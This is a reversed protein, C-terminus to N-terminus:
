YTVPKDMLRHPCTENYPQQLQNALSNRKLFSVFMPEFDDRHNYRFSYEDLYKQLHQPSVSHFVGRIGNKVLSWFGEITNTHVNGIVYIKQGHLVWSHNYGFKQLNHYPKFEDSYIQSAKSIQDNIIPHITKGKLDPVAIAKVSGKRQVMGFVPSKGEAGRGRKGYRKGGFYSDDIEVEGGLPDSNENLRSRIRNCMRWATKYTVGTERQIQKASIGGRTQAMLYITYFWTVLSTESKHFVTNATPHVHHGCEQCSFSHRSKMLHHKTVKGCIKCFIGNPYRYEKLWILCASDDSFDKQFDKLTYKQMPSKHNIM